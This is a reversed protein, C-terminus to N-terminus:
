HLPPDGHGGKRIILNGKKKEIYYRITAYGIGGVFAIVIGKWEGDSFIDFELHGAFVSHTAVLTTYILFLVWALSLVVQLWRPFRDLM